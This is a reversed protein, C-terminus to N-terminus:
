DFGRGERLRFLQNVTILHVPLTEEKEDTSCTSELEDKETKNM